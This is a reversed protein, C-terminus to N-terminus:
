SRGRGSPFTTKEASFGKYPHCASTSLGKVQPPRGRALAGARLLDELLGEDAKCPVLRSTSAQASKKELCEGEGLNEGERARHNKKGLPSTPARRM